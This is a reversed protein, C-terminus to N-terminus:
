LKENISALNLDYKVFETKVLVDNALQKDMVTMLTKEKHALNGYM